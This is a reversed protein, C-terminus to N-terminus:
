AMLYQTLKEMMADCAELQSLEVYEDAKHAVEISGPGCILV